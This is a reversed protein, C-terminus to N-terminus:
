HTFRRLMETTEYFEPKKKNLTKLMEISETKKGLNRLLVSIKFYSKYDDKKIDLVKVYEDIAKRM